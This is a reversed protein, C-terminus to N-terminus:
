SMWERRSSRKQEAMGSRASLGLADTAVTVREKPTGCTSAQQGKQQSKGMKEVVRKPDVTEM